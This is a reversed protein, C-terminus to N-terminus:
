SRWNQFNIRFGRERDRLFFRQHLLRGLIQVCIKAIFTHIPM